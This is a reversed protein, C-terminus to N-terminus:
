GLWRIGNQTNIDGKDTHVTIPFEFGGMYNMEPIIIDAEFMLLESVRGDPQRFKLEVGIIRRVTPDFARDTIDVTRQGM